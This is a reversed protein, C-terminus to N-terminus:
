IQPKLSVVHIILWHRTHCLYTDAFQYAVTHMTMPAVLLLAIYQGLTGVFEDGFTLISLRSCPHSM